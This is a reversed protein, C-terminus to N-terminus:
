YPPDLTYTEKEIKGEIELLMEDVDTCMLNGFFNDANDVCDKCTAEWVVYENNEITVVTMHDYTGNFQIDAHCLSGGLGVERFLSLLLIAHDECDGKGMMLTLQPPFAFDQPKEEILGFIGVFTMNDEFDPEYDVERRVFNLLSFRAENEDSSNEIYSTAIEGVEPNTTSVQAVYKYFDSGLTDYFNNLMQNSYIYNIASENILRNVYEPRYGPYKTKLEWVKSLARETTNVFNVRKEYAEKGRLPFDYSYVKMLLYELHLGLFENELLRANMYIKEKEINLHELVEKTNNILQQQTQICGEIDRKTKDIFPNYTEITSNVCGYTENYSSIYREYIGDPINSRFYEIRIEEVTENERVITVNYGLSKFTSSRCTYNSLVDEFFPETQNINYEAWLGMVIIQAGCRTLAICESEPGDLSFEECVYIWPLEASVNLVKLSSTYGFYEIIGPVLLTIDTTYTEGFEMYFLISENTILYSKQGTSINETFNLSTGELKPYYFDFYPLTKKSLELSPFEAYEREGDKQVDICGVFFFFLVLLFLVTSRKLFVWRM